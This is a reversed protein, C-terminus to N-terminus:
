AAHPKRPVLDSVTDAYARQFELLVSTYTDSTIAANAHGLTEQVEKIDAGGARLYTAACHRLDHLRVPPLGSAEVLDDFRQSV